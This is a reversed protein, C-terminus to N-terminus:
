NNPELGKRGKGWPSELLARMRAPFNTFLGDVGLDILRRMKFARRHERPIISLLADDTRSKPDGQDVVPPLEDAGDPGYGKTDFM